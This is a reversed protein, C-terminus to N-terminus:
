RTTFRAVRVTFTVADQFMMGHAAGAFISLQSAPHPSAPQVREPGARGSRARRQDGAGTDHHERARELGQPLALVGARSTGPTEGGMSWGALTTCKLSLARILGATDHAM